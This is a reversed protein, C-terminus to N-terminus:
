QPTLRLILLDESQLRNIALHNKPTPNFEKEKMNVQNDDIWYAFGM